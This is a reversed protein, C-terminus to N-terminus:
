NMEELKISHIECELYNAICELRTRYHTSQSSSTNNKDVITKSIKYHHALIDDIDKQTLKLKNNYALQFQLKRILSQINGRGRVPMNIITAEYPSLQIEKVFEKNDSL